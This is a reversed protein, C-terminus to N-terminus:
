LHLLRLHSHKGLTAKVVTDCTCVGTASKIRANVPYRPRSLGSVSAPWPEGHPQHASTSLAVKSYDLAPEPNPLQSSCDCFVDFTVSAAKCMIYETDVHVDLSACSM